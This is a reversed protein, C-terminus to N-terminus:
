DLYIEFYQKLRTDAIEKLKKKQPLNNNLLHEDHIKQKKKRMEFIMDNIEEETIEGGSVKLWNYDYEYFLETLQSYLLNIYKTRKNFPLYVKVANIVQSTAIILSWLFKLENWIVWAAISSSSAIAMIINIWSDYRYSQSLYEELYFLQFRLQVLDEWYKKQVM